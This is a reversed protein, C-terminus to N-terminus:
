DRAVAILLRGEAVDYEDILWWFESFARALRSAVSAVCARHIAAAVELVTDLAAVVAGLNVGEEAAVRSEMWAARVMKMTTNALVRDVALRLHKGVSRSGGRELGEEQSAGVRPMATRIMMRVVVVRSHACCSFFSGM